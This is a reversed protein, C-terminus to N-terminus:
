KIVSVTLPPGAYTMKMVFNIAVHAMVPVVQKDVVAADSAASLTIVGQSQDGSLLTQSNKGDLTVGPPLSSGYIQELHQFVVDLTVNGTFGARREITVDIRQSEGPRLVIERTSLNVSKIDLPDGVSVAFMPVPYHSRGGGPMYIEQMPLAVTALSGEKGSDDKWVAKGSITPSTVGLPADSAAELLVVGDRGGALIRGCHATVGAPLEAVALQVEGEFGGERDVHVFVPTTVGPALIAKDNDLTLSFRPRSRTISLMYLYDAGGRQHLDSVQVVYRGEAPTVWHQLMADATLLGCDRSDDVEAVTSGQETVIRLVPDLQSRHRRALVEISLAEGARADFSYSDVDGQREIAGALGVPLGIPQAQEVRDNERDAEVMEPLRSSVVPAVGAPQDGCRVPVWLLGESADPPLLVVSTAGQPVNFGVLRLSQSQGPTIRLPAANSVLPGASAEVAYPWNADGQYRVDRVELFYEGEAAFQHCLVPDAFYYNDNTVLIAGSADRLTLIPDAHNQLDHIQDQCRAGWVHFTATMGAGAHFKYQDVDEAQEISGCLTAPLTITSAQSLSNNDGSEAVVPYQTVVLTGVTSVGQPTAIRFARLGPLAEAPATFRVKLKTIQPKEAGLPPAAVEPPIVEGTVDNPSVLVKYAGYLTYRSNIDCELSQGATVALPSASLLMPYSTEVAALRDAPVLCALATGAVLIRWSKLLM